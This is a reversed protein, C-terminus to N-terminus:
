KPLFQKLVNQLANEVANQIDTVPPPLPSAPTDSVPQMGFESLLVQRVSKFIFDAVHGLIPNQASILSIVAPEWTPYLSDLIPFWKKAFTLLEPSMTPVTAPTTVPPVKIPPVPTPKFPPLKPRTPLPPLPTVPVTPPSTHVDPPVPITLPPPVPVQTSSSIRAAQFHMWDKSGESWRGGWVWNEREFAQVIISDPTFTHKPGHFENEDADFDIACAAHMSMNSSGRMPRLVFSGDFIDYKLSSIKAIDKDCRQWIENLVRSLSDACKKHIQIYNQTGKGVKLPWPCSVKVINEKEYNSAYPDGYFEKFESQLPWVPRAIPTVPVPPTPKTPQVPVTSTGEFWWDVIGKGDIGLQKAVAPSLDIGAHNTHRGTKDTGSESQPRSGTVWYPDNTNWPGVDSIDCTVQKGNRSVIVKPRAGSFRYPLAVCLETDTIVHKDYASTNRDSAGGFVTATIGNMIAPQTPLTPQTAELLAWTLHGVIGDVELNNKAQFSRVASETDAGFVGDSKIGLKTQALKVDDGKDGRHIAQHTTDFLGLFM